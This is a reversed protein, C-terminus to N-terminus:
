HVCIFIDYYMYLLWFKGHTYDYHTCAHVYTHIYTYIDDERKDLTAHM